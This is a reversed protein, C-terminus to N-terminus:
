CETAELFNGDLVQLNYYKTSEIEFKKLKDM